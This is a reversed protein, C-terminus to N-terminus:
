KAICVQISLHYVSLTKTRGKSRKSQPINHSKRYKQGKKTKKPKQQKQQKKKGMLLEKRIKLKSIEINEKYTNKINLHILRNASIIIKRSSSIQHSIKSFM